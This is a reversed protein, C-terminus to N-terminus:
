VFLFRMCVIRRMIVVKGMELFQNFLTYNNWSLLLYDKEWQKTPESLKKKNRLKDYWMSLGPLFMEMFNNIMQKGFMITFLHIWVDYM